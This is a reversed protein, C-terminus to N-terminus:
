EKIHNVTSYSDAQREAIEKKSDVADVAKWLLLIIAVPYNKEPAFKGEKDLTIMSSLAKFTM